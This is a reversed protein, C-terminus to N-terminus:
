LYLPFTNGLFHHLQSEAGPSHIRLGVNKRLQNRQTLNMVCLGCLLWLHNVLRRAGTAAQNFEGPWAPGPAPKIFVAVPTVRMDCQEPATEPLSM